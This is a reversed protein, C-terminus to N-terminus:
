YGYRMREKRAYDMVGIPIEILALGESQMRSLWMTVRERKLRNSLAGKLVGRCCTDLVHTESGNPRNFGKFVFGLTGRVRRAEQPIWNSTRGYLRLKSGGTELEYREVYERMQRDAAKSLYKSLYVVAGGHKHRLPEFDHVWGFGMKEVRAKLPVFWHYFRGKVKRRYLKVSRPLRLLVHYHLSGRKQLELVWFYAASEMGLDRRFYNLFWTRFRKFADHADKVRGRDNGPMTLTLFYYFQKHFKSGEAIIGRIKKRWADPCYRCNERFRNGCAVPLFSRRDHICQLEAFGVNDCEVNRYSM